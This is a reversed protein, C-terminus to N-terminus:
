QNWHALGKNNETSIEDFRDYDMDLYGEDDVSFLNQEYGEAITHFLNTLSEYLYDPEQGFTNTWYIKQENETGSNLDVWYCNGAGDDLFPFLQKGPTFSTAHNTFYGEVSISNHYYEIAEALSLFNHIPILGTLGSPTEYDNHIGNAIGYLERLEANFICNLAKETQAIQQETAPKNVIAPMHYGLENQKAIITQFSESITKM